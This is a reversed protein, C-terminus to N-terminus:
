ELDTTTNFLATLLISGHGVQPFNTAARNGADLNSATDDPPFLTLVDLFDLVLRRNTASLNAFANRSAQAEGGHRLIVETLNMSRGDHGYPATSAVGWLAMTLFEKRITGDYNREWFNPGLDHRKFDTYINRVTFSGRMPRKQVPFSTGDTVNQTLPTATAFLRNFIGRTTDFETEVDAVRRDRDIVFDAVHCGTCGIQGFISRGNQV